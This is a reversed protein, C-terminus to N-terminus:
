DTGPVKPDVFKVVRTTGDSATAKAEGTPAVVEPAPAVPQALAVSRLETVEVPPVVPAAVSKEVIPAAEATATKPKTAPRSATKKTSETKTTKRDTRSKDPASADSNPGQAKSSPAGAVPQLARPPTPAAAAFAAPVTATSALPAM